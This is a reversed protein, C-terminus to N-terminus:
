YAIPIWNYQFLWLHRPNIISSDNSKASCLLLWVLGPLIPCSSCATGCQCQSWLTPWRRSRVVSATCQVGAWTLIHELMNCIYKMDNYVKIAHLCVFCQNVPSHAPFTATVSVVATKNSKHGKQTKWLQWSLGTELTKWKVSGQPCFYKLELPNYSQMNLIYLQAVDATGKSPTTM